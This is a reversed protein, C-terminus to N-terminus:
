GHLAITAESSLSVAGSAEDLGARRSNGTAELTQVKCSQSAETVIGQSPQRHHCFLRNQRFATIWDDEQGTNHVHHSLHDDPHPKHRPVKADGERALAIALYCWSGSMETSLM